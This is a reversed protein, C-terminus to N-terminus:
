FKRLKAFSILNLLNIKNEKGVSRVRGFFAGLFEEWLPGLSKKASPDDRLSAITAHLAQDLHTLAQKLHGIVENDQNKEM